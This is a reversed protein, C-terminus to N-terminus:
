YSYYVVIVIIVTSTPYINGIYSIGSNKIWINWTTDPSEGDFVHTTFTSTSTPGSFTGVTGDPSEIYLTYPDCGSSPRATIKVSTIHAGSPVSGSSLTSTASYGGNIANLKITTKSFSGSAAFVPTAFMICSMICAIFSFLMHRKVKGM